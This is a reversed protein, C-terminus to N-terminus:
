AAAKGETARWSDIERLLDEAGMSFAEALKPINRPRPGEGHEWAQVSFLSVGVETALEKQTWGKARRHFAIPHM